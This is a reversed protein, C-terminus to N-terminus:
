CGLSEKTDIGSILNTGTAVKCLSKKQSLDLIADTFDAGEILADKFRSQMLMGNRFNAQRLDAGEFHSAFAVVDQLNANSLNSNHLDSSNFVTGRLDAESFDIDHLDLKLFEQQQLQKGHMDSTIDQISRQGRLEPATIALALYPQSLNIISLTLIGITWYSCYFLRM